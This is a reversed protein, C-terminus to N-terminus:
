LQETVPTTRCRSNILSQAKAFNGQIVEALNNFSRGAVEHIVQLEEPSFRELLWDPREEKIEPKSIGVKLRWFESSGVMNIVSNIGKHGGSGGDFTLKLKGLDIDMDDHIVCLHQLDTVGCQILDRAGFGSENMYGKSFGIAFNGWNSRVKYVVVNDFTEYEYIQLKSLWIKAVIAGANHRTNEYREPSNRVAYLCIM